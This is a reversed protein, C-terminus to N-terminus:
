TLWTTFYQWPGDIQKGNAHKALKDVTDVAGKTHNYQLIMDPKYNNEKESVADDIHGSSLLIVARNKKPVTDKTLYWHATPHLHL